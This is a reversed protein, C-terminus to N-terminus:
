DFLIIKSLKYIVQVRLYLFPAFAGRPAPFNMDDVNTNSCGLESVVVTSCRRLKFNWVVWIKDRHTFTDSAMILM